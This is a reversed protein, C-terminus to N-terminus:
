RCEPTNDPKAQGGGIRGGWRQFSEKHGCVGSRQTRRHNGRYGSGRPKSQGVQQVDGVLVGVVDEVAAIVVQQRRGADRGVVAPEGPQVAVVFEVDPQDAPNRALGGFQM